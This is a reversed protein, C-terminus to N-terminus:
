FIKFLLFLKTKIHIKEYNRLLIKKAISYPINKNNQEKLYKKATIDVAFNEFHDRIESDCNEIKYKENERHKSYIYIYTQGHTTTIRPHLRLFMFMNRAILLNPLRKEQLPNVHDDDNDDANPPHDVVSVGKSSNKPASMLIRKANCCSCRFCSHM